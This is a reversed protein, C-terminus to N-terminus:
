YPKSADKNRKLQVKLRKTGIQFGNMAQIASHASVQSDYSVFGFCKSLNTQKDIFVKASVISGFPQFTQHLDTDAFEQPLHYIFLNAGEPGEHQKPRTVTVSPSTAKNNYVSMSLGNTLLGTEQTPVYAKSTAVWDNLSPNSSLTPSSGSLNGSLAGSMGTTLHGTTLNNGLLSATLYSAPLGNSPKVQNPKTGPLSNTLNNVPLSNTLNNVPLCPQSLSTTLSSIPLCSQSLTMSPYTLNSSFLGAQGQSQISQLPGGQLYYTAMDLSALNTNALNVNSLTQVPQGQLRSSPSMELTPSSLLETESLSPLSGGLGLGTALTQQSPASLLHQLSLMNSTPITSLQNNVTPFQGTLQSNVPTLQGPLQSNVPTIQGPIQSNVATLPSGLATVVSNGPYGSQMQQLIALYQPNILNTNISALNWLNSQLQQVKKHEKEKQTDAFKVVLPSSCGEMTQSHHMAKIATIATLRSSFTVFACGKSIGNNDRLITCEEIIGFRDFMGRIDDESLKKCVM